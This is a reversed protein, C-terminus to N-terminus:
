FNTLFDKLRKFYHDLSLPNSLLEEEHHIEDHILDGLYEPQFTYLAGYPVTDTEIM